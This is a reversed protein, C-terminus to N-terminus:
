PALVYEHFVRPGHEADEHRTFGLSATLGDIAVNSAADMSSMKSFGKRKAAEMLHHMLTTAVGRRQWEDAVAVAFECHADGEYAGYRAVGVETLTSNHYVLAIYALRKRVDVDMLQDHPPKRDSFSGLFRFHPIGKGLSNFFAFDRDRDKDALERILVPTADSLTEVWYGGILGQTEDNFQQISSSTHPM